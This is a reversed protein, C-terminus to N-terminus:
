MLPMLVADIAHIIGNSVEVDTVIVESCNVFLLEGQVTLAVIDGNAMEVTSGALSLATEALLADITEQRLADFAAYRRLAVGSSTIVSM